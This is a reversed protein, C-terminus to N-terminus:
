FNLSNSADSVQKLTEQSDGYLWAHGYPRWTELVPLWEYYYRQDSSSPPAGGPVPLTLCIKAVTTEIKSDPLPAGLVVAPATSHSDSIATMQELSLPHHSSLAVLM